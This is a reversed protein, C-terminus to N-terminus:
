IIMITIVTITTIATKLKSFLAPFSLISDNGTIYSMHKSSGLAHDLPNSTRNETVRLKLFAGSEHLGM